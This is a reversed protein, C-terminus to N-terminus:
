AHREGALLRGEDPTIRRVRFTGEYGCLSGLVPSTLRLTCRLVDEYEPDATDVTYADVQLPRPLRVRLRGMRLAELRADVEIANPPLYRVHWAMEFCGRPGMWEAVWERAPEWVLHADIRRVVTPLVFTRNWHHCLRGKRDRGVFIHMTTPVDTGTEPFLVDWGSLLRLLPRAWRVSWVREMSGELLVDHSGDLPLMFEEMLVKPLDQGRLMPEFPSAISESGPRVTMPGLKSRCMGHATDTLARRLLTGM